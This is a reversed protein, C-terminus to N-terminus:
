LFGMCLLLSGAHGFIFLYLMAGMKASCAILVGTKLGIMNIYDEMRVQPEKEFDMDLQQGDCVQSATTSFLELVKGLVKAPAM